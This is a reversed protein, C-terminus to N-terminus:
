RHIIAEVAVVAVAVAAVVSAEVAEELFLTVAAVETPVAVALASVVAVQLISRHEEEKM